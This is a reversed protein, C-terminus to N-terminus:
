RADHQPQASAHVRTFSLKSQHLQMGDSWLRWLPAVHDNGVLLICPQGEFARVTDYWWWNRLDQNLTAHLVRPEPTVCFGEVAREYALAVTPPWKPRPVTPWLRRIHALLVATTPCAGRLALTPCVRERWVAQASSPDGEVLFSVVWCLGVWGYILPDDLAHVTATAEGVGEHFVHVTRPDGDAERLVDDLAQEWVTHAVSHITLPPLAARTKSRM